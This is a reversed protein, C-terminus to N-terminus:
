WDDLATRKTDNGELNGISMFPMTGVRGARDPMLAADRDIANDFDVLMGRLAGGQRVVMINNISIDRHFIRCNNYLERHCSMADALVMILQNFDCLTDLREALPTMVIRRHVRYVPLSLSQSDPVPMAAEIGGYALTTDDQAWNGDSCQWVIGGVLLKPYPVAPGHMSFHKHIRRLIAAENCPDDGTADVAVVPWADKIFVAPEGGPQASAFFTTIHRGFLSPRTSVTSAHAYYVQQTPTDAICADDFCTIAWHEMKADFEITPDFGFQAPGALSCLVLFQAFQLRGALTALDIARTRYVRDRGFLCVYMFANIAVFAWAFRRNPQCTYLNLVHRALQGCAKKVCTRGPESDMRAAVTDWQSKVVEAINRWEEKAAVSPYGDTPM